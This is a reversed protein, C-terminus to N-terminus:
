RPGSTSSNVMPGAGAMMAVQIKAIGGTMRSVACPMRCTGAVVRSATSESPTPRNWRSRVTSSGIDLRVTTIPMLWVMMAASDITVIAANIPAGPRPRTTVWANCDSSTPVARLPPMAM